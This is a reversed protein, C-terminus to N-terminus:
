ILKIIEELIRVTEEKELFPEGEPAQGPFYPVHVFGVKKDTDKYRRLLTYLLDNCVFTGASYSVACPFGKARLKVAIDKAPITSFCAAEGGEIVPTGNEKKGENDAIEADRVNIGVAEPTVNKRGGALGVCLIADAGIREAEAIALEAAKGYVTQLQLKHLEFEGVTDALSRVCEWSPTVGAGGFPDFGTILLKKLAM